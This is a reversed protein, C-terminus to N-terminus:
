NLYNTQTNIMLSRNIYPIYMHIYMDFHILTYIYVFLSYIFREPHHQAPPTFFTLKLFRLTVMLRILATNEMSCHGTDAGSKREVDVESM